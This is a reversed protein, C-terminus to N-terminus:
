TSTRNLNLVISPALYIVSCIARFCRRLYTLFIPIVQHIGCSHMSSQPLLSMTLCSFLPLDCPFTEWYISTYYENRFLFTYRASCLDFRRFNWKFLCLKSPM